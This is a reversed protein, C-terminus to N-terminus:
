GRRADVQSPRALPARAHHFGTGRPFSNELCCAAAIATALAVVAGAVAVVTWKRLEEFVFL